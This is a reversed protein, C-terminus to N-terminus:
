KHFKSKILLIILTVAFGIFWIEFINKSAYEQYTYTKSFHDSLYILTFIALGILIPIIFSLIIVYFIFKIIHLINIETVNVNYHKVNTLNHIETEEDTNEVQVVCDM